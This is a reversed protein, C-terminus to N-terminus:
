NFDVTNYHPIFSMLQKCILRNVFSTSAAKLLEKHREEVNKYGDRQRMIVNKSNTSQSHNQSIKM